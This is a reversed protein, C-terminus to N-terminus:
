SLSFFVLDDAFLLSSINTDELKLKEDNENSIDALFHKVFLNFFITSLIDDQKLGITLYFPGIVKGKYLLLSNREKYIAHIIDLFISIISIKELEIM